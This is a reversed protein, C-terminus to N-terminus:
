WFVCTTSRGVEVVGPSNGPSGRLCIPGWMLNRQHLLSTYVIHTGVHFDTPYAWYVGAEQVNELEIPTKSCAELM